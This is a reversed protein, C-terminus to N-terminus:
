SHPLLNRVSIILHNARERQHGPELLEDPCLYIVQLIFCIETWILYDEVRYLINSIYSVKGEADGLSTERFCGPEPFHAGDKFNFNLPLEAYM